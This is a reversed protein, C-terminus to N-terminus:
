RRKSPPSLTRPRRWSEKQQDQAPAIGKVEHVRRNVAGPSLGRKEMNRSRIEVGRDEFQEREGLQKIIWDLAEEGSMARTASAFRLNGRGVALGDMEQIALSLGMDKCRLM